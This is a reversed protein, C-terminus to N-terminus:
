AARRSLLWERVGALSQNIVQHMDLYMYTGCRGIFTMDPLLAAMARYKELLVQEAGDTSKVPYYREHNNDRYDCPEELTLIKEPGPRLIHGPLLSWDTERTFPQDDTFNVTAALGAVSRPVLRHHFRISRYPLPGHVEGFYEDIAMSNFCHLYAARMAEEFPTNLIVNINEHDLINEFLRTYGQSPLLQFEDNPFYRDDTDYRIPIRKVVDASLAALDLGWMKRTYPAFFIDTLRRGIRSLLYEEANQPAEIAEAQGALLCQAEEEGSITVGFIAELTHLNIPLPVHRGDALCAVVRHEYPLFEGFRRLWEVVRANNTHFLHPGYRHLRIGAGTEEDYANGAIHSRRDIVTVSFGAQALERAYVAGAFGAGVVLIRRGKM